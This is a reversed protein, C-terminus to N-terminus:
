RTSLIFPTIKHARGQTVVSAEVVDLNDFDLNIRNYHAMIEEQVDDFALPRYECKLTFGAPLNWLKRERNLCKVADSSFFFSGTNFVLYNLKRLVKTKRRVRSKVLQSPVNSM